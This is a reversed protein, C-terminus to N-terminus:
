AIEEHIFSSLNTVYTFCYSAILEKNLKPVPGMRSLFLISNRKTVPVHKFTGQPSTLQVNENEVKAFWDDVMKKEWLLDKWMM